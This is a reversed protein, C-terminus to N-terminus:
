SLTPRDPQWEMVRNWGLFGRGQQDQTPAHYAFHRDHVDGTRSELRAVVSMGHRVCSNPFPVSCGATHLDDAPLRSYTVRESWPSSENSIKILQDPDPTDLTLAVLHTDIDGYNASAPDVNEVKSTVLIDDRGDGDLDGRACSAY